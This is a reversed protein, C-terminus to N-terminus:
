FRFVNHRNPDLRADLTLLIPLHDSAFSLIHQVEMNPFKELWKENAVVRDLRERINTRVSNRREWTFRPGVFGVDLLDCYSLTDRFMEMRKEERSAGGM